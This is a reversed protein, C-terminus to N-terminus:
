AKSKVESRIREMFEDIPLAGLDEGSRLRVAVTNAEVEKDGVILMYPVKALQAERIKYNLKERRDDVQVRLAKDLMREKLQRAYDAHRDAIPIISVQVPALWVPFAGAYHEVLVGMFREMSGLVTRHIMVARHEQGDDGIYNIDFREPENFDVQITPGQWSRGLADILRIDIKPGYFVAEGEARVYELNHAELAQVLAAEARDWVEDSGMYKPDGKERVSFDIAFDKFGFARLMFLAFELVGGVEASLQEPTCFIHADDQTFGRVRMTGHLTGSPEYRYVTGLEAWRLPLERYSRLHSKYMYIAFPCNMPKLQYLQEDVQMPSFMNEHYSDLHGSREWTEIRGIHPSFVLEYGKRAHQERWFDEIARRVAGGKPHWLVLGPGVEEHISYLDLEKGLRRHDRKAAEEIRTLHAQLEAESDYATGYIRQLMPRKSDGRWYAGAVNLVKFAKIESTSAVHPGRCLDVFSGNRYISIVQDDLGELLELKYPQNLSTFLARAEALSIEEREFQQDAAVIDRMKAEIVPLDDPTLSRPLDFDYYFGDDIAPGIGLKADPFLDIVAEAMVHSASHRMRELEDM